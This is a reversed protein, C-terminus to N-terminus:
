IVTTASERATSWKSADYRANMRLDRIFQVYGDTTTCVREGDWNTETLLFYFLQAENDSRLARLVAKNINQETLRGQMHLRTVSSYLRQLLCVM